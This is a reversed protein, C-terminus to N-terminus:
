AVPQEAPPALPTNAVVAAALAAARDRVGQALAEIRAIAAPDAVGQKLEAIMTSLNTLLNMAASDAAADEAATSEAFDLADTLKSMIIKELKISSRNQEYLFDLKWEMRGLQEMLQQFQTPNKRKSM